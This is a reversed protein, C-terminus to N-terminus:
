EAQNSNTNAQEKYKNPDHEGFVGDLLENVLQVYTNWTDLKDQFDDDSDLSELERYFLRDAIWKGIGGFVTGGGIAIAIYLGLHVIYFGTFYAMLKLAVIVLGAGVIFGIVSFVMSLNSGTKETRDLSGSEAEASISFSM